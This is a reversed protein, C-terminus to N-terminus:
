ENIPRLEYPEFALGYDFTYGVKEIRELVEKINTADIEYGYEAFIEDVFSPILEPTEFLDIM